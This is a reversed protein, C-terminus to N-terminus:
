NLLDCLLHFIFSMLFGLFLTAPKAVMNLDVSPNGGESPRERGLLTALALTNQKGQIDNLLIQALNSYKEILIRRNSFSLQM